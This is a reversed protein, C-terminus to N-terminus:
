KVDVNNFAHTVQIPRHSNLEEWLGRLETFYGLVYKSSQKLNKIKVHLNSVCICDDKAFREKPDNWLGFKSDLFASFLQMTGM